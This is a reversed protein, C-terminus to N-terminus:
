MAGEKGVLLEQELDEAHEPVQHLQGDEGPVPAHHPEEGTLSHREEADRHQLPETATINALDSARCIWGRGWGGGEQHM